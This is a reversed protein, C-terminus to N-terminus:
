KNYYLSLITDFLIVVGILQNYSFNSKNIFNYMIDKHNTSKKIGCAENYMHTVVCGGNYYWGYLVLLVIILHTKYNGFILSGFWLYTSFLHHIFSNVFTYISIEKCNTTYQDCLFSLISIILYLLFNISLIYKM